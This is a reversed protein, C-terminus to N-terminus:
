ANHTMQLLGNKKGDNLVHICGDPFIKRLGELNGPYEIDGAKTFRGDLFIFYELMKGTIFIYIEM